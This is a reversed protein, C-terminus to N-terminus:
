LGNLMRQTEESFAHVHVGATMGEEEEEEGGEGEEDEEGDEHDEEEEQGQVNEAQNANPNAMIKSVFSMIHGGLDMEQSPPPPASQATFMTSLPQTMQPPTYQPVQLAPAVLQQQQQQVQQQQGQQPAGPNNGGPMQVMAQNVIHAWQTFKGLMADLTNLRIYFWVAVSILALILGGIVWTYWPISELIASFM